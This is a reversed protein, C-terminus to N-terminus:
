NRESLIKLPEYRMVFAVAVCASVLTLALGIALLQGVVVWDTATSVESLYDVMGRGFKEFGGFAGQPADDPLDGSPAAMQQAGGPRGFNQDLSAMQNQQSAIQSALLANTAPVAAAAGIATGALLFVFTVAFLEVLFQAAVKSKRMGIATLVGIEYKRERIQFIHFVVLIVGGAALVVVLFWLAFRSLNELPVLSQEYSEVDSSTVTYGDPLGLSKVDEQFAEYNKAASLGNLESFIYTGSVQERLATTSTRGTEEDTVTQAAAASADTIAKLAPYSLYIQNAPDSAASFGRMMGDGAVAATDNHYIGAITLLIAEEQDNPNLLTLTGGVELGNLTALEDSIVCVPDASDVEFVAGDTIQSTGNIFATMADLSSYGVLTFDGQTGMGQPPTRGGRGDDPAGPFGAGDGPESGAEESESSGSTDVATLEEGADASTTLTYIFDKVYSSTAYHQMEELTLSSLNQLSALMDGGQQQTQQMMAQRDMAIQATIQLSDLGSTRARAAAQRISLALCSAAAIVLVILGVLISRGKSRLLNRMANKVIYM